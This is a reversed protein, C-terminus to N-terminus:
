DVGGSRSEPDMRSRLDRACARIEISEGLHGFVSPSFPPDALDQRLRSEVRVEVRDILVQPQDRRADGGHQVTV